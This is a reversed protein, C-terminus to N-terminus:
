YKLIIAKQICVLKKLIKLIKPVKLLCLITLEIKWESQTKLDNIMSSLYPRIKTLYEKVSLSKNKGGNSEYKIYNNDSASATKVPQYYDKKNRIKGITKNIKTPDPMTESEKM